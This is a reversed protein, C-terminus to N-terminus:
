PDRAAQRALALLILAAIGTRVRGGALAGTALEHLVNTAQVPDGLALAIHGLILAEDDHIAEVPETQRWAAYDGAWRGAAASNWPWSRGRAGPAPLGPWASRKM